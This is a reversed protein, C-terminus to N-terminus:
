KVSLIAMVRGESAGQGARFALEDRGRTTRCSRANSSVVVQCRLTSGHSSEASEVVFRGPGHDRCGAGVSRDRSYACPPIGLFPNPASQLRPPRLLRILFGNPWSRLSHVSSLWSALAALRLTALSQPGTEIGDTKDRRWRSNGGERPEQVQKM